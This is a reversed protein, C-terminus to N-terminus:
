AQGRQFTINFTGGLLGSDITGMMTDEGQFAGDFVLSGGVIADDVEITFDVDKGKRTGSVDGQITGTPPSTLDALGLLGDKGQGALLMTVGFEIETVAGTWTGDISFAQSDDSNCGVSVLALGLTIAATRIRRDVVHNKM